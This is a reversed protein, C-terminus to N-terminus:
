KFYGRLHNVWVEYGKETLHVGDRTYEKRMRDTSDAFLSHTEILTFLKPNLQKRIFINTESVRNILSDRRTPFVTQVFVKTRPSQERISKVIRIINNATREPSLSPNFLDNIGIEIFVAKPKIYTIEGLRQLVGDTVDGALGRNKIAPSNLRKGWDGGQQTISNGLFVIDNLHLPSAKFEKIKRPYNNRTWENHTPILLGPAPYLSDPIAVASNAQKPLGVKQSFKCASILSFLLLLFPIILNTIRM